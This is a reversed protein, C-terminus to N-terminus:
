DWAALKTALGGLVLEPLVPCGALSGGYRAVPLDLRCGRASDVVHLLKLIRGDATQATPPRTSSSTSRGCM